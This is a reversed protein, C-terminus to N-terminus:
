YITHENKHLNRFPLSCYSSRCFCTQGQSHVNSRSKNRNHTPPLPLRLSLYINLPKRREKRANNYIIWCVAAFTWTLTVESELACQGRVMLKGGMVNQFLSELEFYLIAQTGWCWITFQQWSRASYLLALVADPNASRNGSPGGLGYAACCLLTSHIFGQVLSCLKLM